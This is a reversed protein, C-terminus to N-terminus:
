LGKRIFKVAFAAILVAAIMWGVAVGDEVSLKQCEPFTMTQTYTWNAGTGAIKTGTWQIANGSRAATVLFVNAGSTYIQGTASAAYAHLASAQSPYCETGVQFPM